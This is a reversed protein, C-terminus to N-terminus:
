RVQRRRRRRLLGDFSVAFIIIVGTAFQSWVAPINFYVLGIAVANLLIAGIAAGFVTATGGTLPNGGIVAGAVAFLELGGGSTPDGSTYFALGLIGALGALFGALLFAMTKSRGVPIGAFQAADPNSGIERVRYGFPTARLVVTLVTVVVLLIWVSVPIGFPGNGGLVSFFSNDIPM